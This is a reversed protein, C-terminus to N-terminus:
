EESLDHHSLIIPKTECLELVQQLLHSQVLSNLGNLIADRLAEVVKITDQLTVVERCAREEGWNSLHPKSEM